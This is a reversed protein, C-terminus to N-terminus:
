EITIVLGARDGPGSKASAILVAALVGGAIAAAGGGIGIAWWKWTSEKKIEHPVTLEVSLPSEDTGESALVSGKSDRAEVFFALRGKQPGIAAGPITGTLATTGEVYELRITSYDPGGHRRWRILVERVQRKPDDIEIQITVPKGALVQKPAKAVVEIGPTPTTTPAGHGAAPPQSEPKEPLKLRKIAQDFMARISPSVGPPLRFSPRLKLVEVFAQVANEARGLATFAVGMYLYARARQIPTLGPLQQVKILTKLAKEYELQEYSREAERLLAEADDPAAPAAAAVPIVSLPLMPIPLVLPFIFLGAVMLARKSVGFIYTQPGQLTLSRYADQMEKEM